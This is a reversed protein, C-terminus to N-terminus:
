QIKHVNDFCEVLKLFIKRKGFKIQYQIKKLSM